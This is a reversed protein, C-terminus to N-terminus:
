SNFKDGIFYDKGKKQSIVSIGIVEGDPNRIPSLSLYVDIYEGGKRKMKAKYNEVLEGHKAREFLSIINHHHEAGAIVLFRRKEMEIGRYGYMIEAGVNWYSIVGSLSVAIIPNKSSEVIAAHFSSQMESRKRITIDHMFVEVSPTESHLIPKATVEVDVIEGDIRIIKEEIVPIAMGERLLNIRYATIKHYDPHIFDFISRGTVQRDSEAGFLKIGAPNIYTIRNESQVFVTLPAFDILNHYKKESIALAAEAKKRKSIDRVSHVYVHRDGVDFPTTSVEVFFEGGDKRHHRTEFIGGDGRTEAELPIEIGGRTYKVRMDNLNMELFEEKSFGYILEAKRNSYIIDFNEDLMFMPDNCTDFINHWEIGSLIASTKM